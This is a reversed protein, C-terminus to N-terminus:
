LYCSHTKKKEKSLMLKKRKALIRSCFTAASSRYIKPVVNKLVHLFIRDVVYQKNDSKSAENPQTLCTEHSIDGDDTNTTPMKRLDPLQIVIDTRSTTNFADNVIRMNNDQVTLTRLPGSVCDMLKNFSMASAKGAESGLVAASPPAVYVYPRAEPANLTWIHKPFHNEYILQTPTLM